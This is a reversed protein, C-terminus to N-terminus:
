KAIFARFRGAPLSITTGEIVIMDQKVAIVSFLWTGTKQSISGIVYLTSKLEICDLTVSFVEATIIM